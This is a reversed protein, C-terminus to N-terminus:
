VPAAAPSGSVASGVYRRDAPSAIHLAQSFRQALEDGMDMGLEARQRAELLARDRAAM